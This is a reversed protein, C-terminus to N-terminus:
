RALRNLLGEHREAVEAALARVRDQKACRPDGAAITTDDASRRKAEAVSNFAAHFDDLSNVTRITRDSLAM